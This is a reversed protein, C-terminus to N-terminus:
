SERTSISRRFSPWQRGSSPYPIGTRASGTEGSTVSGLVVTTLLFLLRSPTMTGQHDLQPFPLRWAGCWRRSSRGSPAPPSWWGPPPWRASRRRAATLGTHRARRTGGAPAARGPRAAADPPAVCGRAPPRWRRPAGGPHTGTTAPAPRRPRPPRGRPVAGRQGGGAPRGGRPGPGRRGRSPSLRTGRPRPRGGTWRGRPGPPARGARRTHPRPRDAPSRGPLGPATSAGPTPGPGHARGAPRSGPPGARPGGAAASRARSAATARARPGRRAASRGGCGRRTESAGTADVARGMTDRCVAHRM